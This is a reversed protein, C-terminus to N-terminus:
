VLSSSSSGIPVALPVGLFFARARHRDRRDDRRPDAGERLEAADGLRGPRRRRHRRARPAPLHRRDLELHRTRRHPHLADRLPRAAHGRPFARVHHHGLACREPAGRHGAAGVPHGPRGLREAAGRHHPVAPSCGNASRDWAVLSQAALEDSGRVIQTIGLTLLGGVAVLASLMATLVALWKPWRHRQLLGSFPVLLAGILVAVLMPIVILRLQIILFVVVALVGGILLMRWSWGAALRVGFPISDTVERPASGARPAPPPVEPAGRSLRGRKRGTSDTM